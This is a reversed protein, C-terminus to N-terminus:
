LGRRPEVLVNAFLLGGALATAVLAMRFAGEVGSLVDQEIFSAVSYFGISGPVLLMIGPVLLVSAPREQLRAFLNAGTGLLLAGLGAGLEPGIWAAGTRAGLFGLIGAALIWAADRARAQFLVLFALPALFLAAVFAWGGPALSDGPFATAPILEAIRRAIGVGLGIGLLTGVASALRTTGSTLHRTAIETMAVTLTYGPVLVILGALTVIEADVPVGLRALLSAFLAVLCAAVPEFVQALRGRTGALLAFLGTGFGLLTSVGLDLYSGGFLMAASGSAVAYALVTTRAGWPAPAAVIAALRRLGARPDHEEGEIRAILEALQSLRRLNVEGPQVRALRTHSGEGHGFTAFLTTPNSLIQAQIGQARAVREATGELQPAPVGCSHLALALRFVLERARSKSPQRGARRAPRKRAKKGGKRRLSLKRRPTAKRHPASPGSRTTPPGSAATSTFPTM